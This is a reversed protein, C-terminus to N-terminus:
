TIPKTSISQHLRMIQGIITDLTPSQKGKQRLELLLAEMVAPSKLPDVSSPLGYKTVANGLAIDFDDDGLEDRIIPELTTNFCAYDSEVRFPFDEIADEMLGLFRQIARNHKKHDNANPRGEDCDWIVYTPIELQTFVAAMKAINHKGGVDLVATNKHLLDFGAIRGAAHIAAQDIPGEVLVVLEAFFGEALESRLTHLRQKLGEPSYTGDPEQFAQELLKCVTALDGATFSCQKPGSDCPVRRAIRLEDFRDIAVFLSSHSAFLVQTDHAVGSISGDSLKKLVSAFHRQKTPHQYLEPEEIALILGPLGTVEAVSTDSVESGSTDGDASGSTNNTEEDEGAATAKALHQLLTLIFARQLGHGKRDIPGEFGDDDIVVDAKPLPIEFDNAPLWDLRVGTDAYYARLTGSLDDGLSKLETIKSPDVIERYEKSTREQFDKVAKRQQIASRVVLEMLQQIVAGKSDIADTTADRVAAIFVFRTSKQLSGRGVNTFGFFQGDDLLLECQDPHKAEWALMADEAESASRVKELDAYDEGAEILENFANSRERLAGIKRVTAFKPHQRTAGFYKGSDKRNGGEFVRTVTMEGSHIRDGFRDLEDDNFGEFTLAIEIANDPNRAFYDDQDVMPSPSYFKEIARLLTSKGAGNGGIIGTHKGLEVEALKIARFNTIKIRRLRM